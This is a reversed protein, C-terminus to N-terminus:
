IVRKESCMENHERILKESEQETLVTFEREEWTRFYKTKVIADEDWYKEGMCKCYLRIGYANVDGITDDAM